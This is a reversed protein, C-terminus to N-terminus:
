WMLETRVLPWPEDHDDSKYQLWAPFPRMHWSRIFRRAEAEDKLTVLWKKSANNGSRNRQDVERDPVRPIQNHYDEVINRYASEGWPMNRARGDMSLMKKLVEITGITWGDIWLLVTRGPQFIGNSPKLRASIMNLDDKLAAEAQPDSHLRTIPDVDVSFISYERLTEGIDEGETVFGKKPILPSVLTKAAHLKAIKHLLEVRSRWAKAQGLSKFTLYYKGTCEGNYDMRAPIIASPNFMSKWEEIHKGKPSVRNFDAEVLNPLANELILLAPVLKLPENPTTNVNRPSVQRRRLMNEDQLDDVTPLPLQPPETQQTNKGKSNKLGKSEAIEEPFLEELLSKQPGNKTATKKISKKPESDMPDEVKDRKNSAIAVSKTSVQKAVRDSQHRKTKPIPTSEFEQSLVSRIRVKTHFGSAQLGSDPSEFVKSRAPIPQKEEIARAHIETDEDKHDLNTELSETTLLVEPIPTANTVDLALRRLASLKLYDATMRAEIGKEHIRPSSKTNRISGNRKEMLRRKIDEVGREYRSERRQAYSRVLRQGDPSDVVIPGKLPDEGTSVFRKTQKRAENIIFRTRYCQPTVKSTLLVVKTQSWAPLLYAPPLLSTTIM